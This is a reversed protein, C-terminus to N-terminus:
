RSMREVHAKTFLNQELQGPEVAKFSITTVSNEVLADAFFMTQPYWSKQGTKPLTYTQWNAFLSKRLLKGSAAYEYRKIPNGTEADVWLTMTPFELDVGKRATLKLIQADRGGLKEAGGYSAQYQGALNSADFDARRSNTGGIRERDTRREWRGVTPDYSWLNREIQLYGKGQESKPATFMILLHNESGERRFVVAQSAVDMKGQEKQVISLLSKTDGGSNQRADIQELLRGCEETSLAKPSKAASAPSPLALSALLLFLTLYSGAPRFASM